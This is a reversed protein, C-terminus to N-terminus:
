RAGEKSGEQLAFYIDELSPMRSAVHVIPAGCAALAAVVAPVAEASGVNVRVGEPQLHVDLVGGVEKLAKECVDAFPHLFGIEVWQTGGLREGLEAVTGTALLRGHNYLAVRDCLRQAEVLNHTALFITRGEQRSLESILENVQQAAEPDLGSTPEDLFLLPPEHLLARALALRQKMGKSFGGALDDARSGLGFQELVTQVRGPLAQADLGALTGFFLLNDRASLREYLSPTETLVGTKARVKDGETQPDYGLVRARGSNPRLLGNLVRVTTTKGAGNPGLVGFVEGPRVQLTLSDLARVHGFCRTLDTTEIALDM